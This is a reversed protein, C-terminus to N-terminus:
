EATPDASDALSYVRQRADGVKPRRSILGANLLQRLSHRVTRQPLQTAAAIEYQTQEKDATELLVYILRASAPLEAVADPAEELNVTTM